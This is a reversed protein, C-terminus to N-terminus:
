KCPCFLGATLIASGAGIMAAEHPLAELPIHAADSLKPGVAGTFPDIYTGAAARVRGRPIWSSGPNLKGKPSFINRGYKIEIMELNSGVYKEVGKQAKQSTM